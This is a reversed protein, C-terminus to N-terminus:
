EFKSTSLSLLFETDELFFKLLYFYYIAVQQKLLPWSNSVCLVPALHKFLGGILIVNKAIPASM